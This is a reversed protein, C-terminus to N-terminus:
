LHRSEHAPLDPPLLPALRYGPLRSLIRLSLHGPEPPLGADDPELVAPRRWPVRDLGEHALCPSPDAPMAGTLTAHAPLASSAGASPSPALMPSWVVAPLFRQGQRSR